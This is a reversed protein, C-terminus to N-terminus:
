ELMRWVADFGARCLKKANSPDQTMFDMTAESASNILATAFGLPVKRLTGLNRCRDVLGFIGAMAQNGALRSEPTIDASVTLQALARRKYPFAISWETGNRWVHYLQDRLEAEQPLDKMVTDVMDRKLELYLQNFLDVKTEFYTFLSGNAIGAEKAIKATPVSLGHAVIVRAAADLIATRKEDSRPRAV